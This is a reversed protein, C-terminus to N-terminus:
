DTDAFGCWVDNDRCHINVGDGPEDSVFRSMGDIGDRYREYANEFSTAVVDRYMYRGDEGNFYIDYTATPMTVVNRHRIIRAPVGRHHAVRRLLEALPLGMINPLLVDRAPWTVLDYVRESAPTAIRSM